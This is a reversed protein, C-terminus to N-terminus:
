NGTLIFFSQNLMKERKKGGEFTGLHHDIVNSHPKTRRPAGHGNVFIAKNVWEAFPM